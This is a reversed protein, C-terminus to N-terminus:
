FRSRIGITWKDNATTSDPELFGNVVNSKEIDFTEYEYETFVSFQSNVNYTLPVKVTYGSVGGLDFTMKPYGTFEAIMEPNVARKYAAVLAMSIEKSYHIEAGAEVKWYWWQYIENQNSSLTREWSRYGAGLGAWLDYTKGIREQTFMVSLDDITNQTISLVEGYNGGLYSGVYDTDGSAHEYALALYSANAGFSGKGVKAKLSIGFGKLAGAKESDLIHGDAPDYERYDFRTQQYELDLIYDANVDGASLSVSCLLALGTYIIHSINNM